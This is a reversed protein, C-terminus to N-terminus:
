DEFGGVFVKGFTIFGELSFYTHKEVENTGVYGSLLTSGFLARHLKVVGMPSQLNRQSFWRVSITPLSSDYIFTGCHQFLWQLSWPCDKAKDGAHVASKLQKSSGVGVWVWCEVRLLNKLYIMRGYEVWLGVLLRRESANEKKKVTWEDGLFWAMWLGGDRTGGNQGGHESSRGQGAGQRWDDNFTTVKGDGVQSKTLFAQSQTRPSCCCRHWHWHWVMWNNDLCSIDSYGFLKYRQIHSVVCISITRWLWLLSHGDRRRQKNQRSGLRQFDQLTLRDLLSLSSTLVVKEQLKPRNLKM